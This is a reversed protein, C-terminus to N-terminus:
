VIENPEIFSAALYAGPASPAVAFDDAATKNSLLEAQCDPSGLCSIPFRAYAQTGTNDLYLYSDRVHVGNVGLTGQKQTFTNNLAVDVATTKVNLRWVVGAISDAVLVM